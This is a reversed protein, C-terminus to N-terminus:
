AKRSQPPPLRKLWRMSSAFTSFAQCSTNASREDDGVIEAIAYAAALKM